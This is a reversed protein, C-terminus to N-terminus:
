ISIGKFNYSKDMFIDIQKIESEMDDYDSPPFLGDINALINKNKPILIM